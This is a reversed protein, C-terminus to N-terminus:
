IKTILRIIAVTILRFMYSTKDTFNQQSQTYKCQDYVSKNGRILNYFESLCVSYIVFHVFIIHYL